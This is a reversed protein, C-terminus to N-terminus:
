LETITDNYRSPTYSNSVFANSSYSIAYITVSSTGGNYSTNYILCTYNYSGDSNSMYRNIASNLATNLASGSNIETSSKSIITVYVDPSASIKVIHKYLKTGGGGTSYTEDCKSKFEALNSLTIIKESM